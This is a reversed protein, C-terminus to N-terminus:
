DAMCSKYMHKIKRLIKCHVTYELRILILFYLAYQSLWTRVLVKMIIIIIFILLLM